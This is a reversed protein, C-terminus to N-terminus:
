AFHQMTGDPIVAVSAAEPFESELLSLTEEWSETWTVSDPDAFWDATTRDPCSSCVIVRVTEPPAGRKMYMRGGYDKGFGRFLYHCVQGEPAEVLIVVAGREFNVSGLGMMMCIGMENYKGYANSIVIDNGPSPSTAYHSRATEVGELHAEVPDGAFLDTIRGRENILADIKFRMGAMKVVESVEAYMVNDDFNGLGIRAPDRQMVDRHFATITRVGAVGPLVIKGGGGFGVHIHPTICGIGIRLDCFMVERNIEVPLGTSTEGIYECNEYPNHNYIAFRRVVEDGLKRRFDTNNMAGHMGLAPIFRINRDPVGAGEMTELVLPLIDKVPTPRTMDDFVIAVERATSALESLPLSGIPRGLAERIQESSLGPKSFGPPELVRVDWRDPFTLERPENGYWLLDPVTVKKLRTGRGRTSALRGTM